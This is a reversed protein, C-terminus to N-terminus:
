QTDRSNAPTTQRDSEGTLDSKTILTQEGNAWLAALAFLCALSPVRLPYDVLSAVAILGMLILGLASLRWEDLREARRSLLLFCRYVFAIIALSLLLAGAMSGTVFLDLWDNHAQQMYIPSLLRDPEHMQYVREFSGAGTGFPFYEKAMDLVTPIIASRLEDEARTEIIRDWSVGRGLGITSGILGLGLLVPLVMTWRFRLRTPRVRDPRNQSVTVQNRRLLLPISCLAMTAVIMGARSGTVLILPMLTLGGAIALIDLSRNDKAGCSRAFALLPLTLALLLAQHNRNAFLGVASGNNTIAYFYLPGEPHSLLQLVGMFASAGAMILILPILRASEQPTLQAGLVLVALPLLMAYLANWTSPPDLSLPRWVEGLAAVNDIDRIIDRGPLSQWVQPPLPILQFGLYVLILIAMVFPFRHSKFHEFRLTSLGFGLLIVGFPRLIVLSLIDGRSGGGLLFVAVLLAGLAQYPTIASWRSVRRIRNHVQPM